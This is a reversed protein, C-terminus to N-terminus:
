MKVGKGPREIIINDSKDSEAVAHANSPEKIIKM